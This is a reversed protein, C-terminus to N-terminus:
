KGRAMLELIALPPNELDARCIRRRDFDSAAQAIAMQLYQTRQHHPLRQWRDLLERKRKTRQKKQQTTRDDEALQKLNEQQQSSRIAKQKEMRKVAEPASWNEEIARRLM